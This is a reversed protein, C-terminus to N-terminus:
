LQISTFPRIAFPLRCLNLIDLGRSFRRVRYVQLGALGANEGMLAKLFVCCYVCVAGLFVVCSSFLNHFMMLSEM